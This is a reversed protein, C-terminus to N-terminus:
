ENYAKLLKSIEYESGFFCPTTAHIKDFELELLSRNKGNTTKGGAK